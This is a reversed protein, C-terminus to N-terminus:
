FVFTTGCHLTQNKNLDLLVREFFSFIVFIDAEGEIMKLEFPREWLFQCPNWFKWVTIFGDVLVYKYM